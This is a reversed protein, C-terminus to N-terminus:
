FPAQGWLVTERAGDAAEVEARLEILQGRFYELHVAGGVRAGHTGAPLVDAEALLSDVRFLAPTEGGPVNTLTAPGSVVVAGDGSSIALTLPVSVIDECALDGIWTSNTNPGGPRIIEEIVEADALQAEGEARELAVDLTYVMGAQDIADITGSRVGFVVDEISGFALEEDDAAPRDTIECHNETLRACALLLFLTM